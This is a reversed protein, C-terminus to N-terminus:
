MPDQAPIPETETWVSKFGELLVEDEFNDDINGTDRYFTKLVVTDGNQLEDGPVVPFLKHYLEDETCVPPITVLIKMGVAGAISMTEGIPTVVVYEAIFVATKASDGDQAASYELFFGYHLDNSYVSPLQVSGSWGTGPSNPFVAARMTSPNVHRFLPFDFGQPGPTPYPYIQIDPPFTEAIQPRWEGSEKGLATDFNAKAPDCIMEGMLPLGTPELGAPTTTFYIRGDHNEDYHFHADDRINALTYADGDKTKSIEDDLTLIVIDGIQGICKPPPIEHKPSHEKKGLGAGPADTMWGGEGGPSNNILWMVRYAPLERREGIERAVGTPHARVRWSDGLDGYKLDGLRRVLNSENLDKDLEYKDDITLRQKPMSILVGNATHSVQIGEGQINRLRNVERVLANLKERMGAIKEGAKFLRIPQM